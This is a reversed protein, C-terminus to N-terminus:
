GARLLGRVSGIGEATGVVVLVDRAEVTFEPGPAPNADDGRVVAVVSVGTRTRIKADGITKGAYPSDPELTLWDIVLGEVRQQLETLSETLQGGGLMEALTRADDEDINLSVVCLDPDGPASVFVEKRGSRHHIV